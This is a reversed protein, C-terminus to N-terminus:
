EAGAGKEKGKASVARQGEPPPPPVPSGVIRTVARFKPPCVEFCTGCRICKQQDVIHVQGKASIIAEAPCRRACTMCARCKEPDIWYSPAERILRDVEESSYLRAYSEQDPDHRALEKMKVLKLYPVLRTLMELRSKLESPEIGESTGLPGLAEVERAFENMIQAFRIGEGASVWELRLRKPNIGIHELLKKCLSAMSLADYNGEPNYHCDNIHCGGVFMADAGNSFALLIHKLDVRGSCMVRILRIYTPYQFRSVGCLDAGGYCCWNCIIGLIKPKFTGEASM